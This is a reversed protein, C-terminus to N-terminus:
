VPLCVPQDEFEVTDQGGRSAGAVEVKGGGVEEWGEDVLQSPSVKQKEWEEDVLQSHAVQRSKM